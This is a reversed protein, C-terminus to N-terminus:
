RARASRAPARAKRPSKAPAADKWRSAFGAADQLCAVFAPLAAPRHREPNWIAQVPRHVPKGAVTVPIPRSSHIANAASSSLIAIGHGAEVM